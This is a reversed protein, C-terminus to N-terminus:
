EPFGGRWRASRSAPQTVYADDPYGNEDEDDNNWPPPNEDWDDLDWHLEEPNKWLWPDVTERTVTPWTDLSFPETLVIVPDGDLLVRCELPECNYSCHRVVPEVAASLAASRRSLSM